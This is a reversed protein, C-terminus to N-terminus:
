SARARNPIAWGDCLRNPWPVHRAQLILNTRASFVYFFINAMKSGVSLKQTQLKERAHNM